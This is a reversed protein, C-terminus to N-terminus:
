WILKSLIKLSQKALKVNQMSHKIYETQVGSIYALIFKTKAWRKRLAGRYISLVENKIRTKLHEWSEVSTKCVNQKLCIWPFLDCPSLDLSHSPWSVPGGRGIRNGPRKNNLYARARDFYFLPAGDQVFIYDSWPRSFRPFCISTAHKQVIRKVRHWERLFILGDVYRKINRVM